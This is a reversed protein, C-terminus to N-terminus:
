ATAWDLDDVQDLAYAKIYDIQMVDGDFDPAVDGAVGGVALNVLMYMPDHMDAPTETNAIAMGDFYWTIEDAEWLVGYTHFGSTDLVQGVTLDSTQQGTANSHATMYLSNPDGGFMEIVDLEPPWSGDAPLLWFAPWMGDQEPMDARIEFYGYTQSFTEYSTLMGSTYDYGGILAQTEATAPEASISLVGNSVSFPNLGATPAYDTDIYWQEEGNGELSNGSPDGWWYNSEWTGGTGNWLSLGNFDDSFTLVLNSTDLGLEFQDASLEATQTNALVAIEGNGFDLYVDNGVNTMAASLDDFSTFSHGTLRLTDNESFDLILESGFGKEVVFIDEGAGGYLVDNGLDGNLTQSGAAGRIINDMENGFAYRGDGTVTLNEVNDPLTYSMWTNISDIGGGAAEYVTNRESYLYYIDDGLGGSMQTRVASDGWFTDNFVTGEMTLGAHTASFHNKTLGSDVLTEGIANQFSAM